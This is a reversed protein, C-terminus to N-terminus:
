LVPTARFVYINAHKRFVMFSENGVEEEEDTKRSDLCDDHSLKLPAAIDYTSTKIDVRVHLRGNSM